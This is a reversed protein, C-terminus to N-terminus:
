PTGGGGGQGKGTKGGTGGARATGTGGVDSDASTGGGGTAGGAPGSPGGAADAAGTGNSGAAGQGQRVWAESDLRPFAVKCTEATPLLVHALGKQNLYGERVKGDPLTVEYYEDPWPQGEEDVMEIEVWSTPQPEPREVKAPQFTGAPPEVAALTEAQPAYTTDKGPTATIAEITAEPSTLSAPSGSGASGGSNLKVQTGLISVGSSDVKVFNGGCKLTVGSAAEIVIEQDSKLYIKGTTKESHNGGIEEGFDGAISLSLKGGVKQNLDLKVEEHKNQKVLEFKNEKVTLHRNHDVNEVRDNTVRIHLDKQASVLIKESDKLDEFMIENTGGGGKSSNTKITSKTKEDPLAYPPMQENNFVRGTVIPRDPDGELFDVVVEQGVRPLFMIGYQGGAMGQSVRIWCSSNEDYKGELDWHFQVKVRGYKDTYIEEGSPGVVLATQSGTVTPRRTVRPARFPVDSPVVQLDIEYTAGAGMSEEGVSQPQTAHQSIHTVLYERNLAETPHEALTFKFGSMLGRVSGSMHLIHKRCQQEELRLKALRTGADKEAYNGPYDSIELATYADGSANAGLNTQTKIFDFDKLRTAGVQIEASDRLAFLTDNDPVLGTPERYVCEADIASTVHAVPSDALVMKHGDAAHEFFYFIGEEEMLRSIFDFETERYQVVYERAAYSGQLAWRCKDEPIGADALVKKIIGSVTMESCTNSQFIRSRQRKTLLWHVPVLDVSYYTVRLGQGTRGFRRIMGHVFRSGAGSAIELLCAKGLMADFAIEADESAIDVRFEFLQSIAENGGFGVVKLESAVGDM